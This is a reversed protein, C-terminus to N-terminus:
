SRFISRVTIACTRTHIYEYNALCFLRTYPFSRSFSLYQRTSSLNILSNLCHVIGLIHISYPTALPSPDNLHAIVQGEAQSGRARARGDRRHQARREGPARPQDREESGDGARVGRVAVAM